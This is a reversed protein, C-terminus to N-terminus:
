LPWDVENGTSAQPFLGTLFCPGRMPFLDTLFLPGRMPFASRHPTLWLGQTPLRSKPM